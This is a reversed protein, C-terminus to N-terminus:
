PNFFHNGCRCKWGLPKYFSYRNGQSSSDFFRMPLASSSDLRSARGPMSPVQVAMCPHCENCKNHCSPPTSGLRTKDEFFIGWEERQMQKVRRRDESGNIKCKLAASIPM